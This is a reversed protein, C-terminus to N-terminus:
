HPFRAYHEALLGAGYDDSPDRYVSHIHNPGNVHDLEIWVSPGTIRFYVQSEPETDGVWAFRLEEVEAEVQAMHLSSLVEEQDLVFTEVVALLLERQEVSMDSASLGELGSPVEYVDAGPGAILGGSMGEAVIASERQSESLSEMLAHATDVEDGLIRLGALDGGDDPVVLPELGWLAPSMSVDDRHITFTFCLHHGDFQWSWPETISPQGFVSISYLDEGMNKNGNERLLEDVAMILQAQTLGQTSLSSGLLGLFLTLQAESLEGTLLGEREYGSLPLNSWTQRAPDDLDFSVTERQETSLSEVFAQAAATLTAVAEEAPTQQPEGSDGSDGSGTDDPESDGTEPSPAGTESGDSRTDLGSPATDAVGDVAGDGGLAADRCGLAVLLVCLSRIGGTTM